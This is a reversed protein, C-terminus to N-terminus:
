YFIEAIYIKGDREVVATCVHTYGSSMRINRSSANSQFRTHIQDATKSTAKWINESPITDTYISYRDMLDTLNGYMPSENSSHDYIAMDAARICAIQYMETSTDAELPSIGENLRQANLMTVVEMAKETNYSVSSSVRSYEGSLTSAILHPDAAPATTGIVRGTEYPGQSESTLLKGDASYTFISDIQYTVIAGDEEQQYVETNTVSYTGDGHHVTIPEDVATHVDGNTVYGANQGLEIDAINMDTSMSSGNEVTMIPEECVSWYFNNFEDELRKRYGILVGNEDYVAYVDDGIYIHNDDIQSADAMDDLPIGNEDCAVFAFTDDNNRIYLFYTITGDSGVVCYLNEVGDVKQYNNPIDPNIEEWHWTINGAIDEEPTRKMYYLINGNDDVVMYLEDEGPVPIYNLPISPDLRWEEDAVPISYRKEYWPTTYEEETNQPRNVPMNMKIGWIMFFMAMLSMFVFLNQKM